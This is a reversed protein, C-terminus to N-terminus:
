ADAAQAQDAFKILEDVKDVGLAEDLMDVVKASATWYMEAFINLPITVREPTKIKFRRVPLKSSSHRALRVKLAHADKCPGCAIEGNFHHRSYGSDTGCEAVKRPSAM